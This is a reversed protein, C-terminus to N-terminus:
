KKKLKLLYQSTLFAEYHAISAYVIDTLNAVSMAVLVKHEPGNIFKPVILGKESQEGPGSEACFMLQAKQGNTLTATRSVSKGDPRTNGSAKLKDASTGGMYSFIRVTKKAAKADKLLQILSGSDLMRKLDYMEGVSLYIPILDTQRSGKGKELDYKVFNLHFRGFSFADNLSEVFCNRGDIRTIQQEQQKENSM